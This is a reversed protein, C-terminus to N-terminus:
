GCMSKGQSGEWIGSWVARIVAGSYATSEGDDEFAYGQKNNAIAINLGLPSPTLVLRLLACFHTLNSKHQFFFHVIHYFTENM